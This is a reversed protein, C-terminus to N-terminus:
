HSHSHPTLAELAAMVSFGIAILLFQVYGKPAGQTRAKERQLIEFFAVYVITGAALSQLIGLVLKHTRSSELDDSSVHQTVLIGIGVGIPSVIAFTL